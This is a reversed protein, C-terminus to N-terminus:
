NQHRNKHTSTCQATGGWYLLGQISQPLGHAVCSNKASDHKVGLHHLQGPALTSHRQDPRVRVLVNGISSKCPGAHLCQTFCTGAQNFLVNQLARLDACSEQLIALGDLESRSLLDGDGCIILGLPMILQNGHPVHAV